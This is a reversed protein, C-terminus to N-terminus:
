VIGVPNGRTEEHRLGPPLWGASLQLVMSVSLALTSGLAVPFPLLWAVAAGALLSVMASSIRLRASRWRDAQQWWKRVGFLLGFFCMFGAPTPVENALLPVSSELKAAVVGSGDTHFIDAESLLLFDQLCWVLLGVLVGAAFQLSRRLLTEGGAGEWLKAPILLVWVCILTTLGFFVAQSAEPIVNTLFFLSATVVLVAPLAAAASFNMDRLRDRLVLSASTTPASLQRARNLQPVTGPRGAAALPQPADAANFSAAPTDRPAPTLSSETGSAASSESATNKKAKRDVFLYWAAFGLLGGGVAEESGVFVESSVVSLLVAGMLIWRVPEPLQRWFQQLSKWFAPSGAAAAATPSGATPAGAAAAPRVLPGPLAGPPSGATPGPLTDALAAAVARDAQLQLPAGPQEVAACFRRQLEFVDQIRKDPDKELARRLVDQLAPSVMSLDPEATLHKMLIEATTEGDFPMQGTLMEILMVGLAYVDVERGYRGRCVEPAMYYVTGVSQTQASRRSESIFKSLGVDGIKVLEGDSLVNAPKLDRHVLGRDHLFALGQTMGSLWRLIEPLPMGSPHRHLVDLLSSGGVYEMVIWYDRDTDQRIDFITVLNPHNLNLCQRVGRLEVELNNNLLKVAVERGADSIAFYVEGFGGRHIARKITYGELPRSEPAFTFKM